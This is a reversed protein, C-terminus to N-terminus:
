TVQGEGSPARRIGMGESRWLRHCLAAMTAPTALAGTVLARGAVVVVVTEVPALTAANHPHAAHLVAVCREGDCGTVTGGRLSHRVQGLVALQSSTLRKALKALRAALKALRDTLKTLRATLKTVKATQMPTGLQTKQGCHWAAQAFPWNGWLREVGGIQVTVGALDAGLELSM